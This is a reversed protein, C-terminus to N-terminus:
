HTERLSYDGTQVHVIAADDLPYLKDVDPIGAVRYLNGAAIVPFSGVLDGEEVDGGTGVVPLGHNIHDLLNGTM